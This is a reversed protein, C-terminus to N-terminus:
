SLRDVGYGSSHSRLIDDIGSQDRNYINTIGAQRCLELQADSIDVGVPRIGSAELILYTLQGILGM